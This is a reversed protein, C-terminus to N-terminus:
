AVSHFLNRNGSTRINGEIVSSIHEVKRETEARNKMYVDIANEQFRITGYEPQTHDDLRKQLRGAAFGLLDSMAPFDKELSRTVRKKKLKITFNESSNVGGREAQNIFSYKGAGPLAMRDVQLQPLQQFALQKIATPESEDALLGVDAVSKFKGFPEPPASYFGKVTDAYISQLRINKGLTTGSKLTENLFRLARNYSMAFNVVPIIGLRLDNQLTIKVDGSKKLALTVGTIAGNVSNQTTTFERGDISFSAKEPEVTQQNLKATATQGSTNNRFIFGLKELIRDPDKFRLEINAPERSILVLQGDAVVAKVSIQSSGGDAQLNGNADETADLASNGNIDENYYFSPLYGEITYAGPATLIDLKGNQNIDEARDLSGNNNKDEGYNIKDRLAFLSDSAEVDVKWGNIRFSGVLGLALGPEAYTSSGLEHSKAIQKIKIEYEGPVASPAAKADAISPKASSASRINFPERLKASRLRLNVLLGSLERWTSKKESLFREGFKPKKITPQRTRIRSLDADTNQANLANLPSANTLEVNPVKKEIFRFRSTFTRTRDNQTAVRMSNSSNASINM